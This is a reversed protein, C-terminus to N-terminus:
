SRKCSLWLGCIDFVMEGDDTVMVSGGPSCTYLYDGGSEREFEWTYDFTGESGLTLTCTGDRKFSVKGNGSYSYTQGSNNDHAGTIRWTGIIRTTAAAM